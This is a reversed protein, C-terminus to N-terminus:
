RSLHGLDTCRGLPPTARDLLVLEVSKVVVLFINTTHCLPRFVDPNNRWRGPPPQRTTSAPYLFLCAALAWTEDSRWLVRSRPWRVCECSIWPFWAAM